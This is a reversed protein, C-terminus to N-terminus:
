PRLDGPTSTSPTTPPTPTTAPAGPSPTAPAPAPASASHGAHDPSRAALVADIMEALMQDALVAASRISGRLLLGAYDTGKRALHAAWLVRGASVDVLELELEVEPAVAGGGTAGERWRWVTGRVFLPTGLRAGVARLRDPDLRELSPVREALLAARFDGPEVADFGDSAELRRTLLEAVLRPAGRVRSDNAFPIVCVHVPAAAPFDPSRYTVARPRAFPRVRRGSPRAESGPRPLTRVLDELVRQALEGADAARHFGLADATQSASRGTTASWVLRGEADLMRASIAVLPDTGATWTDVSSFVVGAADLGALLERRLPTPLSDVRRERKARLLSDVAEGDVVQWGRATLADGLAAAVRAPAEAAASANEPPLLVVRSGPAAAAPTWAALAVAIGLLAAPSRM